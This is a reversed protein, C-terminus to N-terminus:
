ILDSFKWDEMRKNPFGTKLFELLNHKREKIEEEKELPSLNKIINILDNKIQEEM